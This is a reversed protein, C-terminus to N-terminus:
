KQWKGKGDIKDSLRKLCYSCMYEERLEEIGEPHYIARLLKEGTGRFKMTWSNKPVERGCVYTPEISPGRKKDEYFHLKGGTLLAKLQYQVEVREGEWKVGPITVRGAGYDVRGYRKGQNDVINGGGDDRLSVGGIELTLPIIKCTIDLNVPIPPFRMSGSIPDVIPGVLTIDAGCNICEVGKETKITNGSDCLPCPVGVRIGCEPINGGFSIPTCCIKECKVCVAGGCEGCVKKCKKCMSRNCKKCMGEIHNVPTTGCSCKTRPLPKDSASNKISILIEGPGAYVLLGGIYRHIKTKPKGNSGARVLFQGDEPPEKKKMLNLDKYLFYEAWQEELNCRKVAQPFPHDSVVFHHQYVPVGNYSGLLNDKTYDWTVRRLDEVTLEKM